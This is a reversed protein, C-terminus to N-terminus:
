FTWFLWLWGWWLAAGVLVATTLVAIAPFVRAAPHPPDDVRRQFWLALGAGLLHLVVLWWGPGPDGAALSLLQALVVVAALVVLAATLVGTCGALVSRRRVRAGRVRGGPVPIPTTPAAPGTPLEETVASPAPAAWRRRARAGPRAVPTTPQDDSM